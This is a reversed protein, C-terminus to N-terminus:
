QQMAQKPIHAIEAQRQDRDDLNIGCRRVLRMGVRVGIVIM